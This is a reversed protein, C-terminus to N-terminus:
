DRSLYDSLNNQVKVASYRARLGRQSGRPVERTHSLICLPPCRGGRQNNFLSSSDNVGNNFGKAPFIQFEAMFM